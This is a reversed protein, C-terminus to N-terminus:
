VVLRKYFTLESRPIRYVPTSGMYEITGRLDNDLPDRVDHVWIAEDEKVYFFIKCPMELNRILDWYGDYDVVNLVGLHERKTKYKADYYFADLRRAHFALYDPHRRERIKEKKRAISIEGEDIHQFYISHYGDESLTKAIISEGERGKALRRGWSLARKSVMALIAKLSEFDEKSSSKKAKALISKLNM